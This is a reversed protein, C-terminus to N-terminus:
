ADISPLQIELDLPWPETAALASELDGSTGGMRFIKGNIDGNADLRMDRSTDDRRHTLSVIHLRTRRGDRRDHYTVTADNM